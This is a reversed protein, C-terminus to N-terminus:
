NLTFVRTEGGFNFHFYEIPMEVMFNLRSKLEPFAAAAPTAYFNGISNVASLDAAFTIAKNM